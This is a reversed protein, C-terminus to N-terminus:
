LYKSLSNSITSIMSAFGNSSGFAQTVVKSSVLGGSTKSLGDFYNMFEKKTEPSTNAFRTKIFSDLPTGSISSLEGMASGSKYGPISNVLATKFESMMGEAAVSMRQLGGMPSIDVNDDMSQILGGSADSKAEIGKVKANDIGGGRKLAGAQGLLGDYSNIKM